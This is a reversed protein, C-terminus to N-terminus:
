ASTSRNGLPAVWPSAREAVPSGTASLLTVVATTGTLGLPAPTSVTVTSKSASVVLTGFTVSAKNSIVTGDTTDTATFTVAEAVADTATFTVVGSANTVNPNAAPTIVASGTGSLTITKGAVPQPTSGQDRLTVTITTMGAAVSTPNAVVTSHTADGVPAAFTVTSTHSLTVSDTTDAATLTVSQAVADTVTFTTSGNSDTSTPSPGTIQAASPSPTCSGTLSVAKGAVPVSGTGLLTVTVESQDVGDATATTPSAVVTSLAPDPATPSTPQSGDGAPTGSDTANTAIFFPKSWLHPQTFDQYNNGVYFICQTAATNGCTIGGSEGLKISDPLAYVAYHKKNPPYTFSGDANPLITSGNVTNGDCTSPDTPVVGNPAMCEVIQVGATNNPAAFANNAPIVFQIDQGSSFPIGATFGSLPQAATPVVDGSNPGAAGATAVITLTIGAAVLLGLGARQLLTWHGCNPTARRTSM